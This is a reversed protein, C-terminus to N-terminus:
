FYKPSPELAQGDQKTCITEAHALTRLLTDPTMHHSERDSACLFLLHSPLAARAFRQLVSYNYFNFIGVQQPHDMLLTLARDLTGVWFCEIHSFM